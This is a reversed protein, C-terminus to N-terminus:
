KKPKNPNTSLDDISLGTEDKEIYRFAKSLMLRGGPSFVILVDVLDNPKGGPAVVTLESDSVFRDIQAEQGGFYVKVNRPGDAIFRNGHIHVSTGDAGQTPEIRTVMLTTNGNGCAAVALGLLILGAPFWLLPLRNSM